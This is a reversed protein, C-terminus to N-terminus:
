PMPPGPDIRVDRQMGTSYGLLDVTQFVVTRRDVARRVQINLQQCQPVQVTLRANILLPGFDHTQNGLADWVGVVLIDPRNNFFSVSKVLPVTTPEQDLRVTRTTKRGASDYASLVYTENGDTNGGPAEGNWLGGGAQGAWQPAGNRTIEARVAGVIRFSLRADVKKCARATAPGATFAEIVPAGTTWASARGADQDTVEVAGTQVPKVLVEYSTVPQLGSVTATRSGTGAYSPLDIIKNKGGGRAELRYGTETAAQDTFALEISTDTVGTVRVDTPAPPAPQLRSYSRCGLYAHDGLGLNWGLACVEHVGDAADVTMEFGNRSGDPRPRDATTTRLYKGDVGIDVLTSTTPQDPDVAWGAIRVQDGTLVVSDVGGYPNHRVTWTQCGLSTARASLCIRHEGEAGEPVTLTFGHDGGYAPHASAVDARPLNASMQPGPRGDVEATVTVPGTTGPDIAWGALQVSIGSRVPAGLAGFPLVPVPWTRCAITIRRTTPPDATTLCVRSGPKAAVVGDFGHNDHGPYPKDAMLEGALVDDVSVRVPLAAEDPDSAWGTLRIGAPVRTISDLRGTPPGDNPSPCDPPPEPSQCPGVAYAPGAPVVLASAALVVAAFLSTLKM